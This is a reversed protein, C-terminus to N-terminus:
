NEKLLSLLDEEVHILECYVKKLQCDLMRCCQRMFWLFSIPFLKKFVTEVKANGTNTLFRKNIHICWYNVGTGLFITCPKEKRTNDSTENHKHKNVPTPENLLHVRTPRHFLLSKNYNQKAQKEYHLPVNHNVKIPVDCKKALDYIRYCILDLIIVYYLYM